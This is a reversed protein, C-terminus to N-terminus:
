PRDLRAAVGGDRLLALTPLALGACVAAPFLLTYFAAFGVDAPTHLVITEYTTDSIGFGSVLLGLGVAWYVARTFVFPFAKTTWIGVQLGIAAFLLAQVPLFLTRYFVWAADNRTEWSATATRMDRVLQPLTRADADVLPAVLVTLAFAALAVIGAAAVFTLLVRWARPGEFVDRSVTIGAPFAAVGIARAMWLAYQAPDFGNSLFELTAMLLFIATAWAVVSLLFKQVVRM